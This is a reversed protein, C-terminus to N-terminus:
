PPDAADVTRRPVCPSFRLVAPLFTVSLIFSVAIGFAVFSGLHRYPPVESFNMSLFGLATTLSALFVPHLNLGISEVIAEHRSHGARLGQQM